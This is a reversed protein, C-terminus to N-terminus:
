KGVYRVDTGLTNQFTRYFNGIYTVPKGQFKVTYISGMVRVEDLKDHNRVDCRTFEAMICISGSGFVTEISNM